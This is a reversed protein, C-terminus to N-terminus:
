RQPVFPNFSSPCHCWCRLSDYKTVNYSQSLRYTGCPNWKRLHHETFFENPNKSTDIR